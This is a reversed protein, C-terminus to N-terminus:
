HVPGLPRIGVIGRSHSFTRELAVVGPRRSPRGSYPEMPYVGAIDYWNVVKTARSRIYNDNFAKVISIACDFGKLYIHEETNWIPKGMADAMAQVEASAPQREWLIHGSIIDITERAEPDNQLERVFDFKHDVWEDFAHLRVDAFGGADLTRRLRRPSPFASGRRMAAASPTWNWGTFPAPLGKLKM